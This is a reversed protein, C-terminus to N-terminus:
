REVNVAESPASLNKSADIAVVRYTASTGAALKRDVLATETTQGVIEGDRYVVYAVSGSDDTSARWALEVHRSRKAVLMSPASPPTTDAVTVHRTRAATAGLADKVTLVATFTGPRQYAHTVTAGSEDPSGDGFSWSWSAISGAAARSGTGDLIVTAPSRDNVGTAAVRADPAAADRDAVDFLIHELLAGDDTRAPLGGGVAATRGTAPEILRFAKLTTPAGPASDLVRLYYKRRGGGSPVLDSLDFVFTGDVATTTGDFAYRGGQHTIAGPNWLRAPQTDAPDSVGLQITLQRREAQRVTFEALLRPRDAAPVSLTFVVGARAAQIRGSGPGRAVRSQPFFSDYAAWVYGSNAWSAGWSNAVKFCGKEGADIRGDGNVDVWLDDDYGVITMMHGGTSGSVWSMARQGVFADDSPTSRDDRVRTAKWSSVYTLFTVIHGNALHQKVDAQGSPTDVHLTRFRNARYRIASRWESPDLNWALYNSDYPFQTTSAAGHKELVEFADRYYSGRDVGHNIMNYTWKPSFVTPSGKVKNSTGRARATEYSLQYYTTAWAVCSGIRGQNGIPPFADSRSNDVHDPLAAGDNAAAADDDALEDTDAAAASADLQPLGKARREHNARDFAVKNARVKKVRRDALEAIQLDTPDHAGTAGAQVDLDDEGARAPPASAVHACALAGGLVIFMGGTKM